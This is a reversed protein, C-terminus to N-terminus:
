DHDRHHEEYERHERYGDHDRYRGEEYYGAPRSRDEEHHDHDCGVIWMGGLMLAPIWLRSTLVTHLRNRLEM